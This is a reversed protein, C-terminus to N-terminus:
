AQLEGALARIVPEDAPLMSAADIQGPHQWRMAQGELSAPTGQWELVKFFHLDVSRDDYDHCVRMFPSCSLPAIGIEEGLERALAELDSEGAAPKGGPFEWLGHFPGDGVRETLLVRKRDDVLIAAVVRIRQKTM